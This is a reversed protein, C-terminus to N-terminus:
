INGGASSVAATLLHTHRSVPYGQDVALVTRGDEVTATALTLRFGINASGSAYVTGNNNLVWGVGDKYTSYVKDVINYFPDYLHTGNTLYGNVDTVGKITEWPEQIDQM